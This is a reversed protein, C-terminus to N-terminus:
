VDQFINSVRMFDIFAIDSSVSRGNVIKFTM